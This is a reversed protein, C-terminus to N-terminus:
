KWNLVKKFWYDISESIGCMRGHTIRHENRGENNQYCFLRVYVARDYGMDVDRAVGIFFSSSILNISKINDFNRDLTGCSFYLFNLSFFRSLHSPLPHHLFIYIRINRINDNEEDEDDDDEDDQKKKM